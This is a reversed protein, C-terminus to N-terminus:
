KKPKVTFGITGIYKNKDAFAQLTNITPMQLSIGAGNQLFTFDIPLYLFKYGNTVSFTIISSPNGDEFLTANIPSNYKTSLTFSLAISYYENACKYFVSSPAFISAEEAYFCTNPYNTRTSFTVYDYKANASSLMFEFTANKTTLTDINYSQDMINMHNYYDPNKRLKYIEIIRLDM